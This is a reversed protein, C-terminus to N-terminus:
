RGRILSAPLRGFTMEWRLMLLGILMRMADKCPSIKTDKKRRKEIWRVPIEKIKLGSGKARVLVETDWLWGDSMSSLMATGSRDCRFLKFGCQHDRVGDRFFVNALANYVATMVRRTAPRSVESGKRRRSGIVIDYGDRMEQMLDNVNALDTSLDADMMIFAKGRATKFAEKIARGKGPGDVHLLRVAPM